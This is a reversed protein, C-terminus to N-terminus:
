QIGEKCHWAITKYSILSDRFLPYKMECKEATFADSEETFKKWEKLGEITGNTAHYYAKGIDLWLTADNKHEPKFMEILIKMFEMPHKPDIITQGNLQLLVRLCGENWGGGTANEIM